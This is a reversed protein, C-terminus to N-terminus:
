YPEVSFRRKVNSNTVMMKIKMLNNIAEDLMGLNIEYEDSGGILSDLWIEIDEKDTSVVSPKFIAEHIESSIKKENRIKPKANKEKVLQLVRSRTPLDDNERAEAKVQEVIDKNNALTEFRNVQDKNFGLNQIVELKPKVSTGSDFKTDTRRKFNESKRDGGSDKPLEKFLDGLRVEADILAESLMLAEEKKQNRVQEALELKDIARIEARVSVLKERGVM